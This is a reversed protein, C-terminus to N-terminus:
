EHPAAAVPRPAATDPTYRGDYGPGASGAVLMAAVFVALAAVRPRWSAAGALLLGAVGLGLGIVLHGALSAGSVTELGPQPPPGILTLNARWTTDGTIMLLPQIAVAALTLVPPVALSPWARGAAVGLCAAGAMIVADALPSLVDWADLGGASAALVVACVAYTILYAGVVGITVAVTTPTIVQLRPRGTSAVLETSRTRRERRGLMAGGGIAMPVLFVAANAHSYTLRAAWDHWSGYTAVLNLASLAFILGGVPLASSRRLETGIRRKMGSTM